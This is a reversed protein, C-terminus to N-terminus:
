LEFASKDPLITEFARQLRASLITFDVEEEPDNLCLMSHQQGEICNCLSDITTDSICEVLNDVQIPSFQGSAVQWWLFVWQNVNGYGRFKDLCTRHLLEPEAQWVEWYTEKRYAAPAHLNRFGTFADPFLVQLCLTRLADKWRSSRFKRGYKRLADKKPFHRNIIGLDNAAAHEWIGVTGHFQWPVESGDTCPLGNRFFDSPQMEQLLFMDDNFYIFHESLGPIRHLNLEITHSSFTPLYEKPIFDQHRVIHLKPTDPNLFAPIHGWTVFHITRVWPVFREVSRFWCPLLGWDRYRNPSDSDYSAPPLHNRKQAQWAPDSGDVWLIVIDIDM